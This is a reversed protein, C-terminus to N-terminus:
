TRRLYIRWRFSHIFFSCFYSSRILSFSQSLSLLKFRSIHFSIFIVFFHVHFRIMSSIRILHIFCVIFISQFALFFSCCGVWILHPQYPNTSIFIISFHVINHQMTACSLSVITFLIIHARLQNGFTASNTWQRAPSKTPWFSFLVRSTYSGADIFIFYQKYAWFTYIKWLKFIPYNVSVISQRRNGVANIWASHETRKEDDKSRTIDSKGHIKTM